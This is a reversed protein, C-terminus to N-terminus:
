PSENYCDHVQAAPPERSSRDYHVQAASLDQDSFYVFLCISLSHIDIIIFFNLDFKFCIWLTMLLFSHVVVVYVVIGQNSHNRYQCIIYVLGSIVVFFLASVAILGYVVPYLASEPFFFFHM